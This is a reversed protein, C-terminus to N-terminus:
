SKSKRLDPKPDAITKLDGLAPKEEAPKSYKPPADQNLEKLVEATMDNESSAYLFVPTRSQNNSQAATDIVLTYGAKKARAVVVQQIQTVIGERFRREQEFLTTRATAEFQRIQATLDQAERLKLEASKKRKEREDASLAQDAASEVLRTYEGSAKQQDETLEQDTKKFGSAREQLAADAQRTRWFGDFVKQLNITALRLEAGAPLTSSLLAAAAWVIPLRLTKM